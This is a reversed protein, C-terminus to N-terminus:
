SNLSNTRTITKVKEFLYIIFIAGFWLVILMQATAAGNNNIIFFNFFAHLATATALGIIIALLKVATRRYFTLAMAAGIVASSVTHVITAGLFRLHGTVMFYIHTEGKILLDFLFLTNEVAAFGLAVTIMYIMADIPEDFAARGLVTMQAALYKVSEEIFSWVLILKGHTLILIVTTLSLSIPITTGVLPGIIELFPRELFFAIIVSFGGVLFAQLINGTPEPKKKDERLWFFLWVIAPVVGGLLALVIFSLNASLM